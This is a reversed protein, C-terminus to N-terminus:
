VVPGVRCRHITAARITGFDFRGVSDAPREGTTSLFGGCGTLAGADEPLYRTRADHLDAEHNKLYRSTGV